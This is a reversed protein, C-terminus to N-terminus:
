YDEENIKVSKIFKICRDVNPNGKARFDAGTGNSINVTVSFTFGDNMDKRVWIVTATRTRGNPKAMYNEFTFSARQMKYSM